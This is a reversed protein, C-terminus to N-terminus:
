NTAKANAKKDPHPVFPIKKLYLMLAQFYIGAFVRFSILPYRILLGNLSWFNLNRKKLALTVDLCKPRRLTPDILHNEIKVALTRGPPSFAMRYNMALDFFPSVHFEKRIEGSRIAALSNVQEGEVLYTHQEGWPTNNVEAIIAEIKEGDQGYCYYFSVPNMRFGLYSLQTLLRISSIQATVGHSELEKYVRKKLNPEPLHKQLHDSQKLRCVTWSRTSWFPNKHFVSDLEDLDIMLMFFRFDFEHKRPLNRRHRVSGEYIASQLSRKKSRVSTASSRM